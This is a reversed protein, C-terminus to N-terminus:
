RPAWRGEGKGPHAHRHCEEKGLPLTASGRRRPRCGDKGVTREEGDGWEPPPSEASRPDLSEHSTRPRHGRPLAPLGDM